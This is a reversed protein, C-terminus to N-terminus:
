GRKKTSNPSISPVPSSVLMEHKLFLKLLKLINDVDTETVVVRNQIDLLINKILIRIKTDM